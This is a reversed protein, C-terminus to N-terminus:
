RRAFQGLKGLPKAVLALDVAGAGLWRQRARLSELNGRLYAGLGSTSAGGAMMHVLVRDLFAVRPAEPGLELARLMFDYDAAIRYGTDFAGTREALARRIYFTPHAPMWGRRFAGRRFPTGRWRRTVQGGTLDAVFDLNGLVADNTALAAAIQALTDPAAFRDDANLFGVADGAFLRLGKNMADYLGRDPESVLRIRPDEYSRVIEATRDTSAGDIVLHEIDPHTQGLVSDITHGITPAANWAVTVVSIKM